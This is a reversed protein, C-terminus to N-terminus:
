GIATKNNHECADCAYFYYLSSINIKETQNNCCYSWGYSIIINCFSCDIM